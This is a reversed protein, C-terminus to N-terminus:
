PLIIHQRLRPRYRASCWEQRSLTLLQYIDTPRHTNGKVWLNTLTAGYPIFQAKIGPAELTYRGQADPKGAQALTSGAM